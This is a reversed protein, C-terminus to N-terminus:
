QANRNGRRGGLRRAGLVVAAVAVAFVVTPLLEIPVVVAPLVMVVVAVLLGISVLIGAAIGVRILLDLRENGRPRSQPEHSMDVCLRGHFM